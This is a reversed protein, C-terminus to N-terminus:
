FVRLSLVRELLPVPVADVFVAAQTAGEIAYIAHSARYPTDAPQHTYNLLLVNEGPRAHRLEVRDPLASGPEATVRVAGYAQLEDESMGYLHRFPAPDIGSIRFSNM